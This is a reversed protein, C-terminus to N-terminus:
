LQLSVPNQVNHVVGVGVNHVVGVDSFLLQKLENSKTMYLTDIRNTIGLIKEDLIKKEQELKLKEQELRNKEFQALSVLVKYEENKLKNDIYQNYIDFPNM